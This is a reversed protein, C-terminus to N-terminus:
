PEITKMYLMTLLPNEFFTRATKLLTKREKKLNLTKTAKIKSSFCIIADM